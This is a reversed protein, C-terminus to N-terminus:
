GLTEDTSMLYRKKLYKRVKFVGVTFSITAVGFVSLVGEEDSIENIDVIHPLLATCGIMIVSVLFKVRLSSLFVKLPDGGETVQAVEYNARFSPFWTTWVRDAIRYEPNTDRSLVKEGYWATFAINIAGALSWGIFIVFITILFASSGGAQSLVSILVVFTTGPFFNGVVYLGEIFISLFAAAYLYREEISSLFEVLTEVGPINQNTLILIGYVLLTLSSLIWVIGSYKDGDNKKRAM